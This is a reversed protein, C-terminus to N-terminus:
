DGYWTDELVEVFRDPNEVTFGAYWERSERGEGAPARFKCVYSREYEKTGPDTRRVDRAWSVGTEGVGWATIGHAPVVCKAPLIYIIDQLGVTLTPHAILWHKIILTRGAASISVNTDAYDHKGSRSFAPSSGALMLASLRERELLLAHVRGTESYEDYIPAYAVDQEFAAAVSPYAPTHTGSGSSSSSSSSPFPKVDWPLLTHENLALTNLDHSLAQLPTMMQVSNM